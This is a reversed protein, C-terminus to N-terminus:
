RERLGEKGHRLLPALFFEIIRREGTQMEATVAMGPILKVKKGEVWLTNNKMLLHMGYILGRQEDLTADDSITTVEGDIVGYKTFPFTHIKIEATMDEHVFGIDKNELFVEVELQESDPVILMLQQAETVVGGVTNISLEQVRGSVPSYLIQKANLDTAKILEEQLAAIQRQSETIETLKEASTQAIFSNIQQQVEAEAAELQKLRQKEAALDQTAEIRQQELQLYETESVFKKNMLQQMKATRKKIIPLTQKLKKIVAQTAGQEARTQTLTSQLTSQQTIYQQWQQWLLRKHLQLENATVHEPLDKKPLSLAELTLLPQKQKGPATISSSSQKDLLTLLAQNVVLKLQASHLEGTLRNQDASTLASDLEILAQGQAVYQGETVLIDKVVAKELPQIHKVRSSPIIKGEASAVINIKGVCAWIIALTFLILLSRGLWKAIPNQPSQQIELAAPLFAALERTHQSDGLQDRNKWADKFIGIASM